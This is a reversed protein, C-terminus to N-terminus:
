ITVIAMQEFVEDTIINESLITINGNAIIAKRLDKAMALPCSLTQTVTGEQCHFLHIM